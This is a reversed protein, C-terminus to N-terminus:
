EGSIIYFDHNVCTQGGMLDALVEAGTGIFKEKCYNLWETRSITIKMDPELVFSDGIMRLFSMESGNQQRSLGKIKANESGANTVVIKYRLYLYCSNSNYTVIDERCDKRNKMNTCEIEVKVNNCYPMYHQLHRFNNQAIDKEEESNEDASSEEERPLDIKEISIKTVSTRETLPIDGTTSSSAVSCRIVAVFFTILILGLRQTSINGSNNM